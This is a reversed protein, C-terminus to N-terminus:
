GSGRLRRGYKAQERENAKRLSIIRPAGDRPTWAMVVMRGDLYGITVFRLEGYDFRADRLTLNEGAFVEEARAMDPGRTELTLARKAPDFSVDMINTVVFFATPLLVLKAM